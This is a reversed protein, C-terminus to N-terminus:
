AFPRILVECRDLDISPELKRVAQFGAQQDSKAIIFEPSLVLIEPGPEEDKVKKPKQIIAVEFLPM